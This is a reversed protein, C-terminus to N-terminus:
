TSSQLTCWAYLFLPCFVSAHRLGMDQPLQVFQDGATIFKSGFVSLTIKPWRQRQGGAGAAMHAPLRHGQSPPARPIWVHGYFRLM